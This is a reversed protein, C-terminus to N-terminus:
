NHNRSSHQAKSEDHVRKGRETNPSRDVPHSDAHSKVSAGASRSNGERVFTRTSSSAFLPRSSSVRATANLGNETSRIRTKFTNPARGIGLSTTEAELNSEPNYLTEPDAFKIESNSQSESIPEFGTDSRPINKTDPDFDTENGTKSHIKLEPAPESEQESQYKTQLESKSKTAHVASEDKMLLKSDLAPAPKAASKSDFTQRNRERMIKELHPQPTRDGPAKKGYEFAKQLAQMTTDFADPQGKMFAGMHSPLSQRWLMRSWVQALAGKMVGRLGSDSHWALLSQLRPIDAKSLKLSFEEWHM